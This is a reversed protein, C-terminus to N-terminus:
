VISFQIYFNISMQSLALGYFFSLQPRNESLQPEEFIRCGSEMLGIGLIVKDRPQNTPQNTINKVGDLM